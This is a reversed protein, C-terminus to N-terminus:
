TTGWCLCEGMSLGTVHGDDDCVVGRPESVGTDSLVTSTWNCEHLNLTAFRHRDLWKAGQSAYFLVVLGYRVKIRNANTADDDLAVDDQALWVLAKHQPSTADDLVSPDSSLYGLRVHLANYREVQHPLLMDSNLNTSDVASKTDDQGLPTVMLVVGVTVSVLLLVGVTAVWLWFPSLFGKKRSLATATATATVISTGGSLPTPSSEPPLPRITFQPDHSSSVGSAQSSADYAQTEPGTPIERPRQPPATTAEIATIRSNAEWFGPPYFEAGFMRARWDWSPPLGSAREAVSFAGVQGQGLVNQSQAKHLRYDVPAPTSIARGPQRTLPRGAATATNPLGNREDDATAIRYSDIVPHLVPRSTTAADRAAAVGLSHIRSPPRISTDLHRSSSSEYVRPGELPSLSNWEGSNGDDGVGGPPRNYAQLVLRLREEMSLGEVPQSPAPSQPGTPSTRPAAKLCSSSASLPSLGTPSSCASVSTAVPSPPIPSHHSVKASGRGRERTTPTVEAHHAYDPPPPPDKAGESSSHSASTSSTFSSPAGPRGETNSKASSKLHAVANAFAAAKSDEEGGLMMLAYENTLSTSARSNKRSSSPNGDNNSANRNNRQNSVVSTPPPEM